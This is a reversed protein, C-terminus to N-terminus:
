DLLRLALFFGRDKARLTEGLGPERHRVRLTLGHLQQGCRQRRAFGRHVEEAQLIELRQGRERLTLTRRDEQRGLRGTHHARNARHLRQQLSLRVVVARRRNRSGTGRACQFLGHRLDRTLARLFDRPRVCALTAALVRVLFEGNLGDRFAFPRLQVFGPERLLRAAYAPKLFLEADVFFALDHPDRLRSAAPFVTLTSSREASATPSRTCCSSMTRPRSSLTVWFPSGNATRWSPFALPCIEALTHFSCSGKRSPTFAPLTTCTM